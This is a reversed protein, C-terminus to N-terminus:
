ACLSYLRVVCLTLVRIGTQVLWCSLVCRARPSYTRAVAEIFDHEHDSLFAKSARDIAVELQQLVRQPQHDIAARLANLADKWAKITAQAEVVSRDFELGLEVAAAVAAILGALDRAPNVLKDDSGGAHISVAAIRKRSETLARIFTRANRISEDSDDIQLAEAREIGAVCANENKAAIAKALAARAKDQETLLTLLKECAVAAPDNSLGKEKAAELAKRLAEPNRSANADALATRVESATQLGALLKRATIVAESSYLLAEAQKIAVSLEDAHKADIARNLAVECERLKGRVKIAESLDADEAGLGLTHAKEILAELEPLSRSATAAKLKEKVDRLAKVVAKAETVAADYEIGIKIAAEVCSLLGNIDKVILAQSIRKRTDDITKLWEEAAAVAPVRDDLEIADLRGVMERVTKEDKGDV